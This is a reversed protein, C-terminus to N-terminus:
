GGFSLVSVSATAQSSVTHAQHQEPTSTQEHEPTNGPGPTIEKTLRRAVTGLKQKKSGNLPPNVRVEDFKGTLIQKADLEDGTANLVGATDEATVEIQKGLPTTCRLFVGGEEYSEDPELDGLEVGYLNFTSAIEEGLNIYDNRDAYNSLKALKVCEKIALDTDKEPFTTPPAPNNSM